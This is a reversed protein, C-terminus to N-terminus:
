FVLISILLVLIIMLSLIFFYSGSIILFKIITKIWGQGYYSKLTWFFYIIILINFIGLLALGNEESEFLMYAGLAISGILFAFSSIYSLVVAHEVYFRKKRIYLIKMLFALIFTTSIVGWILNGVFFRSAGSLDRLARVYQRIALKNQFGEVKYKSILTDVPLQYVDKRLMPYKGIDVFFIKLDTKVTDTESSKTGNALFNVSDANSHKINTFLRKEFSDIPCAALDISFTDRMAIFDDYVESRSLSKLNENYLQDIKDSNILTTLITFQLVLMIFFLRMPHLFKKRKGKMFEKPLYGPRWIGLLTHWLSNDLNLFSAIFEGVLSPFTIKSERTKQGCQPCFLDEKSLSQQCNLCNDLVSKTKNKKSFLKGLYSFFIYFYDLRM